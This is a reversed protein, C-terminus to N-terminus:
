GRIRTAWFPYILSREEGFAGYPAYSRDAPRFWTEDPIIVSGHLKRIVSFVSQEHRNDKFYSNQDNNYNDTFMLVNEYVAKLWINILKEVHSCKRMILIGDLYQGTERVLSDESVNFYKFIQETTWKKESHENMQFSIIGFPSENVFDVYQQFRDKGKMNLTCGADLYVLIEGDNIKSLSEKIIYPRWIGYGGIRPMNLIDKFKNKFEIDLEDPTYAKTTAFGFEKAEKIIRNRSHIFKHNGYTIFHINDM